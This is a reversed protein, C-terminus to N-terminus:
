QIIIIIIIFMICVGVLPAFTILLLLLLKLLCYEAVTDSCSSMRISRIISACSFDSENYIKMFRTGFIMNFGVPTYCLRASDMFLM